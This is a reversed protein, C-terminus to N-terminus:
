SPTINRFQVNSDVGLIHRVEQHLTIEGLVDRDSPYIAEPHNQYPGTQHIPNLNSGVTISVFVFYLVFLFIWPRLDIVDISLLCNKGAIPEM